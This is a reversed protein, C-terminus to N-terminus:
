RRRGTRRGEGITAIRTLTEEHLMRMQTNTEAIAERLSTSTEAIAERLSAVAAAIEGRTASVADRVEQRFHLIPLELKTVREPLDRMEQMQQELLTIRQEISRPQM